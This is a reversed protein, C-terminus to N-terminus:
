HQAYTRRESPEAKRLSIARLTGENETFVLVYLRADLFGIAVYRTEGYNQSDDIDTDATSFDFDKARALSIGHERQNVIDKAPHYVVEVSKITRM